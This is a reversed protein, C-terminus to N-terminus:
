EKQGASLWPSSLLVSSKCHLTSSDLSISQRISCVTGSSTGDQAPSMLLGCYPNPFCYAPTKLPNATLKTFMLQIAQMIYNLNILKVKKKSLNEKVWQIKNPKPKM